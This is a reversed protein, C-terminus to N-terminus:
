SVKIEGRSVHPTVDFEQSILHATNKGGMSKMQEASLELKYEPATWSIIGGVMPVGIQKRGGPYRGPQLMIEDDLRVPTDVVLTVPETKVKQAM